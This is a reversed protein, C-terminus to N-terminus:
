KRKPSRSRRPSKRRRSSRRQPSHSGSRRKPSYKKIEREYNRLDIEFGVNPKVIPRKAKLYALAEDFTMNYKKMLYSIVLSASRSKGERCHCYVKGEESLAKDIFKHVEPIYEAITSEYNDQLDKIHKYKFKDPYECKLECANVIHTIGLNELAQPNKTAIKGPGLWLKGEIIEHFEAKPSSSRRRRSM